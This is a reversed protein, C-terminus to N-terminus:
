PCNDFKYKNDLNSKYNNVPIGNEELDFKINVKDDNDLVFDFKFHNKLYFCFNHKTPYFNM